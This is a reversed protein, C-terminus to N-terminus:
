LYDQILTVSKATVYYGDIRYIGEYFPIYHYSPNPQCYRRQIPRNCDRMSM